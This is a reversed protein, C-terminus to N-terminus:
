FVFQVRGIMTMDPTTRDDLPAIANLMLRVNRNVYINGGAQLERTTSPLFILVPADPNDEDPRNSGRAGSPDHLVAYRAAIEARLFHPRAQKPRFRYVAFALVGDSAPQGEFEGHREEILFKFSPVDYQVGFGSLTRKGEKEEGTGASAVLSLGKAMPPTIELRGVVDKSDNNDATNFGTGNIASVAYTLWGKYPEGNMVTVGSDLGYALRSSVRSRDTLELVLVSTRREIGDPPTAQGVRVQFQDTFRILVFANRLAPQSTLEGTINWGVKPTFSGAAGIRARRIRFTDLADNHDDGFTRIGELFGSGSITVPGIRLPVVESGGSEAVDVPAAPPEQTQARAPAAALLLLLFSSQLSVRILRRLFITL